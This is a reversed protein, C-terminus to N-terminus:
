TNPCGNRKSEMKTCRRWSTPWRGPCEFNSKWNAVPSCWLRRHRTIFLFFICLNDSYIKWGLSNWNFLSRIRATTGSSNDTYSWVTEHSKDPGMRWERLRAITGDGNAVGRMRDQIQVREQVENAGRNPIGQADCRQCFHGPPFGRFLTRARSVRRYEWCREAFTLKWVFDWCYFIGSLLFEELM